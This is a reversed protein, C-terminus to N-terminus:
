WTAYESGDLAVSDAASYVDYVDDGGWSTADIDDEYARAKWGLTDYEEGETNFPDPPVHGLYVRKQSAKPAPAVDGPAQDKPEIPTGCPVDCDPQGEVVDVGDRLEALDRPWGDEQESEICGRVWDCHYRDIATRITQLAARLQREKASRRITLSTPLVVATVVGILAVVVLLEIYTLGRQRRAASAFVRTV